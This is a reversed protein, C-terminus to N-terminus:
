SPKVALVTIEVLVTPPLDVYVTTRAPYPQDFQAAYVANMPAFHDVDTLYVDVRIVDGLTAGQTELVAAINRFTQQTQAAVDDSVVKGTAPDFGVQGAVSIVDGIRVSQSYPGVPAPAADTKGEQRTTM